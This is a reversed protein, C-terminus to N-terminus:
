SMTIVIAKVIDHRPPARTVVYQARLKGVNKKGKNRREDRLTMIVLGTTGFLLTKEKVASNLDFFLSFFFPPPRTPPKTTELCSEQGTHYFGKARNEQKTIIKKTLTRTTTEFVMTETLASICCKNRLFPFFFFIHCCLRPM